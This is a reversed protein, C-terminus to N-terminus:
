VAICTVQPELLKMRRKVESAVKHTQETGVKWLLDEEICLRALVEVLSRVAGLM